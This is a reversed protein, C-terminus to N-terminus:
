GKALKPILTASSIDGDEDYQFRIQYSPPKEEPEPEDLKARLQAIEERLMDAQNTIAHQFEARLKMEQQMLLIAVADSTLTPAAQEAPATQAPKEILRPVNVRQRQSNFSKGGIVVEAGM